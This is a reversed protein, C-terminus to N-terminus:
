RTMGGGCSQPIATGEQCGSIGTLHLYLYLNHCQEQLWRLRQHVPPVQQPHLEHGIRMVATCLLRAVQGICQVKLKSIAWTNALHSCCETCGDQALGEPARQDTSRSSTQTNTSPERPLAQNLHKHKNGTTTRSKRPQAQSAPNDKTQTTTSPNGPPEQIAQNHKAQTSTSQEAQNHKTQTTTSPKCTRAQKAHKHKTQTTTNPKCTQAQKAHHHTTQMTTSQEQPTVNNCGQDCKHHYRCKPVQKHTCPSHGKNSKHEKVTWAGKDQVWNKSCKPLRGYLAQLMRHMRTTHYAFPLMECSFGPTCSGAECSVALLEICSTSEARTCALHCHCHAAETDERGPGPGSSQQVAKWLRVSCQICSPQELLKHGGGPQEGLLKPQVSLSESTGTCDPVNGSSLPVRKQGSICCRSPVCNSGLLHM